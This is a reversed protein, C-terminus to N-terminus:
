KGLAVERDRYVGPAVTAPSTGANRFEVRGEVVVGSGFRVPGEVKLSDCAILSPVAGPFLEEFDSLRKYHKADLDVVPPQGRRGAVLVLRHDPTIECADSRLVLLDSTSKVPSFRSRPVRVAGTHEFTEIAAGMASELQIVKGSNPDRPDVTKLNTIIPLRIVGGSEKLSAALHDLRLWLNNTNFYRHRAIDQFAAEDQPACQASERLLLRGSSVRRALHGGKRDAATREAVEMVFSKETVALYGLLGLDVTAGLNDSNSIFAYRVGASLLRDLLGSNLLSPYFDGHGPPCWELEPDAPWEAPELNEAWIKPVKSQLFDVPGGAVIEPYRELFSLTEGRTSFSNMLLFRPASGGTQGRWYLIQRAIFDLFSEEGRVRILSKTRDLGMGTGLGGNLKIVVLRGLEARGRDGYTALSEWGPLGEVPAIHSERILGRDGARVLRYAELFAEITASGVGAQEMKRSIAGEVRDDIM